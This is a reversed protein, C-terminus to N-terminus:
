SGRSVRKKQQQFAKAKLGLWDDDTSESNVHKWKLVYFSQSYRVKVREISHPTYRNYLTWEKGQANLGAKSAAMDRLFLMSCLPLIKQRTYSRNWYLHHELFDELLEMQPAKWSFPKVFKQQDPLGITEQGLFIDVIEENPFGDTACIKSFIKTQWDLFKKHEKRKKEQM